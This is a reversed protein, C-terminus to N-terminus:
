SPPASPDAQVLGSLAPRAIPGRERTEGAERRGVEGVAMPSLLRKEPAVRVAEVIEEARASRVLEDGVASQARREHAHGGLARYKRRVREGTRAAEAGLDGILEVRGLHELLEGATRRQDELAQVACPLGDRREGPLQDRVEAVGGLHVGVDGRRGRAPEIRVVVRVVHEHDLDRARLVPGDVLRHVPMRQGVLGPRIVPVRDGLVGLARRQDVRDELGPVDQVQRSPPDM